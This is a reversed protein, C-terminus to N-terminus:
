AASSSAAAGWGSSWSRKKASRRLNSLVHTRCLWPALSFLIEALPWPLGGRGVARWLTRLRRLRRPRRAWLGARPVPHKGRFGSPEGRRYLGGADHCLHNLWVKGRRHGEPDGAPCSLVRGAPRVMRVLQLVRKKAPSMFRDGPARGAREAHPDFHGTRVRHPLPAPKRLSEFDPGVAGAAPLFPFLPTMNDLPRRFFLTWLSEMLLKGYYIFILVGLVGADAWAQIIQSHPGM